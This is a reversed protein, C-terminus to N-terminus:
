MQQLLEILQSAEGSTLDDVEDKSFKKSVLEGLATVSVDKKECLSTIFQYQAKSMATSVGKPGSSAKSPTLKSLVEPRTYPCENDLNFGPTREGEYQTPGGMVTWKTAKGEGSRSLIIDMHAQGAGEVDKKDKPRFSKDAQLISEVIGQSVQLVMHKGTDVDVVECAWQPRLKYGPLEAGFPVSIVKTGDALAEDLFVQSFVKFEPLPTLIHLRASEGSKLKVFKSADDKAKKISQALSM